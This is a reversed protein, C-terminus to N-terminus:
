TLYGQIELHFGMQDCHLTNKLINSIQSVLIKNFITVHITALSIQRVLFGYYHRGKWITPLYEEM